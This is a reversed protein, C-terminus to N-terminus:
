QHPACAQLMAAYNAHAKRLAEAEAEAADREQILRATGAASSIAKYERLDRLEAELDRLRRVEAALTLLAPADGGPPDSQIPGFTDAWQLAEELTM